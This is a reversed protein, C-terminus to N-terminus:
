KGFTVQKTGHTGGFGPNLFVNNVSRRKIDCQSIVKKVLMESKKLVINSDCNEQERSQLNSNGLTSTIEKSVEEKKGRDIKPSFLPPSM